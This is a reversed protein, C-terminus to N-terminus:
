YNGEINERIHLYIKHLSLSSTTQHNDSMGIKKENVRIKLQLGNWKM